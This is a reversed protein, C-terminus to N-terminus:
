VYLLYKICLGNQKVAALKIEESPNHIYKICLGIKRVNKLYDQENEPDFGTYKIIQQEISLM